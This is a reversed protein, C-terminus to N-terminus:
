AGQQQHPLALSLFTLICSVRPIWAGDQTLPVRTGPVTGWVPYIPIFRSPVDWCPLWSQSVSCGKVKLWGVAGSGLRRACCTWCLCGRGNEALCFEWPVSISGAEPLPGDRFWNSHGPSWTSQFTLGPDHAGGMHDPSPPAGQNAAGVSIVPFLPHNGFDFHISCGSPCHSPTNLAFFLKIFLFAFLTLCM